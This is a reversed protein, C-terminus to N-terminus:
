GPRAVARVRSRGGHVGPSVAGPDVEAVGGGGGSGGEAPVRASGYYMVAAKISTLGPDQVLPFAASVNGSGAYVAIGDIGLESAHRELYALLMKFDAAENGERLDPLIGILGNSAATRAWGGYFRGSREAGTARNFFM